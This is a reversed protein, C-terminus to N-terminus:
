ERGSGQLAMEIYRQRLRKAVQGPRGDGIARGDIEIVPLVLTSASTIFAERAAYAEEVSFPRELVPIGTEAALGLIARRTIGHLIETGLHRTVIAGDRDVIYANNSSGETIRDQEVMWADDAGAKKAAMKAMCAALLGVTKIDRRLWRIDPITIVRLGREALPNQLIKKQQTFMVLSPRADAPYSFDRDAAGRTVQLYILGEDLSNRAILERQIRELEV